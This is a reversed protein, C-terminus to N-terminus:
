MDAMYCQFVKIGKTFDKVCSTAHQMSQMNKHFIGLISKASFHNDSTTQKNTEPFLM